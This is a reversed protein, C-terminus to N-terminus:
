TKVIEGGGEVIEELWVGVAWIAIESAASMAGTTIAIMSASSCGLLGVMM